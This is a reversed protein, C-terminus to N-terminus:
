TAKYLAMERLRLLWANEATGCLRAADHWFPESADLRL